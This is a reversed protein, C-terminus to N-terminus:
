TNLGSRLVCTKGLVNRLYKKFAEFPYDWMIGHAFIVYFHFRLYCCDLYWDMYPNELVFFYIYM